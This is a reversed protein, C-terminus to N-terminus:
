SGPVPLSGQSPSATPPSTRSHRAQCIVDEPTMEFGQVDSAIIRGYTEFSHTVGKAPGTSGSTFFILVPGSPSPTPLDVEAPDQELLEEFSQSRRDHAAYSIVGLPLRSALRSAAVDHDREDHALLVSAESVELAHDVEPPMYRYNLPTAVLGARVCGLHHVVLAPRHPM